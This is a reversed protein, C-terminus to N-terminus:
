DLLDQVAAAIASRSMGTLRCLDARTVGTERRIVDLLQQRSRHRRSSPQTNQTM